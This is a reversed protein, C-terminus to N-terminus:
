LTGLFWRKAGSLYHNIEKLHQEKDSMYCIGCVNFIKKTIKFSLIKGNVMYVISMLLTSSRKWDIM